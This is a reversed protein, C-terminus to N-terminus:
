HHSLSMDAHFERAISPAGNLVFQLPTSPIFRSAELFDANFLLEQFHDASKHDSFTISIKKSDTYTESPLKEYYYFNKQQQASTEFTFGYHFSEKSLCTLTKVIEAFAQHNKDIKNSSSFCQIIKNITPKDTITALELGHHILTISDKDGTLYIHHIDDPIPEEPSQFIFTHADITTKVHIKSPIWSIRTGSM